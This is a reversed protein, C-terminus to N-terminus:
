LKEDVLIGSIEWMKAVMDLVKEAPIEKIIEDNTPNIVKVMIRKTEEHISYEFRANHGKISENAKEIAKIVNEESAANQKKESVNNDKYDSEKAVKVVSKNRESPIASTARSQQDVRPHATGMQSNSNTSSIGLFNM